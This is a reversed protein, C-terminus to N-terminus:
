HLCRVDPSTVHMKQSHNEGMVCEFACEKLNHLFKAQCGRYSSKEPFTISVRLGRMGRQESFLVFSAWM